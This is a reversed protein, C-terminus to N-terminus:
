TKLRRGELVSKYVDITRIALEAADLSDIRDSRVLPDDSSLVRELASAITKPDDDACVVCGPLSGIWERVDGVDVSVVPRECALAEKVVLPGSEHLSTVLLVDCAAMYSAMMSRSVGDVDVLEAGPEGLLDVAARALSYRKVPVSRLGGFFVLKRDVPLGLKRRAEVKAAPRFVTSDVADPVVVSVIDGPLQEQLARSPVIVADVRRSLTRSILGLVAGKLGYRGSRTAVGLLDSGRFTVVVPVPSPLVVPLTQGFHAHVLDFSDAGLRRRVEARAKLYNMPNMRGRYHVVAVDIGAARLAEVEHHVFISQHPQGPSPWGSTVVLVRLGQSM